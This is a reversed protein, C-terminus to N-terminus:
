RKGASTNTATDLGLRGKYTYLCLCVKKININKVEAIREM